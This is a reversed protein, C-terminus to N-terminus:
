TPKIGVKVHVTYITSGVAIEVPYDGVDEGYVKVEYGFDRKMLIYPLESRVSVKEQTIVKISGYGGKTITLNKPVIVVSPVWNIIKEFINNGVRVTIKEPSSINLPVLVQTGNVKIRMNKSYTTIEITDNLARSFTISLTGNPLITM